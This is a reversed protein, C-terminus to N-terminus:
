GRSAELRKVEAAARRFLAASAREQGLAQALLVLSALSEREIGLAVFAATTEEVLELAERSRGRELLVVGLDLSVLATLYPMGREEFSRRVERFRFEAAGSDGEAASQRGCIWNLKIRELPSAVERYLERCNGALRGVLAFRGLEASFWLLNHIAAFILRPDKSGELMKLASSFHAVATDSDGSYGATLGLLIMAKGAQHRDSTQVYAALVSSLIRESDAFQRETVRHSSVIEALKALIQLDGTGRAAVRIARGLASAGGSLDGVLRRAYGVEAWLQAQLDFVTGPPHQRPELAEALTLGIAAAVEMAAADCQRLAKAHRLWAEARAFFTPQQPADEADSSLTGRAYLSGIEIEARARAAELAASRREMSYFARRVPFEYADDGGVPLSRCAPDFIPLAVTAVEQRCLPCGHLLHRVVENRLENSLQGHVFAALQAPAPHVTDTM